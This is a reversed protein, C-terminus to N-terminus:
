TSFSVNVVEGVGLHEECVLRKNLYIVVKGSECKEGGGVEEHSVTLGQKM